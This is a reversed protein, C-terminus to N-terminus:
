RTTAWTFVMRPALGSTMTRGIPLLAVKTPTTSRSVRFGVDPIFGALRFVELDLFDGGVHHVLGLFVAGGEDFGGDFLVVFQHLFVEFALFGVMSCILRQMRLPVM